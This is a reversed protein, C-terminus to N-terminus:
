NYISYSISDKTSLRIYEWFGYLEFFFVQPNTALM